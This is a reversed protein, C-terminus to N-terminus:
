KASQRRSAHTMCSPLSNPSRSIPAWPKSEGRSETEKISSMGGPILRDSRTLAACRRRLRAVPSGFNEPACPRMSPLEAVPAGTFKPPVTTLDSTLQGTPIRRRSTPLVLTSLAEPSRAPFLFAAPFGAFRGAGSSGAGAPNSAISRAYERHPDLTRLASGGDGRRWQRAGGSRRDRTRAATRAATARREGAREEDAPNGGTRRGTGRDASPHGHDRDGESQAKRMSSLRGPDSPRLPDLGRLAPKGPSPPASKTSRFRVVRAATRPVGQARCFQPVTAGQRGDRATQYLEATSVLGETESFPEGMGARPMGTGIDARPSM